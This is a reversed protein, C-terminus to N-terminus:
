LIPLTMGLQERKQKNIKIKKENVKKNEWDRDIKKNYKVKNYQKFKNNTILRNHGFKKLYKKLITHM